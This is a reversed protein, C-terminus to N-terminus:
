TESKILADNAAVFHCLWTLKLGLSIWTLERAFPEASLYIFGYVREIYHWRHPTRLADRLTHTRTYRLSWRPFVTLPTDFPLSCRLWRVLFPLAHTASSQCGHKHIALRHTHGWESVCVCACKILRSMKNSNSERRQLARERESESERLNAPQFNLLCGCVFAIAM